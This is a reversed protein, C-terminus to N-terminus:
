SIGTSTSSDSSSCSSSYIPARERYAPTHVSSGIKEENRVITRSAGRRYRHLSVEQKASIASTRVLEGAGDLDPHLTEIEELPSISEDIGDTVGQVPIRFILRPDGRNPVDITERHLVDSCASGAHLHSLLTVVSEMPVFLDGELEEQGREVDRIKGQRRCGLDHGLPVVGQILNQQHGVIVKEVNGVDALDCSALNVLTELVLLVDEGVQSVDQLNASRGDPRERAFGETHSARGLNEPLGNVFVDHPLSPDDLFRDPLTEGVEDRVFRGFETRGLHLLGLLIPRLHDSLVLEVGHHFLSKGLM